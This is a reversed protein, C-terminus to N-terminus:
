KTASIPPVLEEHQHGHRKEDDTPREGDPHSRKRRAHELM